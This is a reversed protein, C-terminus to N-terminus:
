FFAAVWLIHNALPSGSLSNALKEDATVLYGKIQIALALYLSDYVTRAVNLAIELAASLLPSTPHIVLPVTALRHAIERAEDATLEARRTKKWLINGVEPYFLDPVHLEHAPDLLGVAEESHIEPVYWKIAISADVVFRTPRPPGPTGARSM